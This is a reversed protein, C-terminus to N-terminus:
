STALEVRALEVLNSDEYFRHRELLKSEGSRPDPQYVSYGHAYHSFAFFVFDANEPAPALKYKTQKRFQHELSTRLLPDTSILPDRALVSRELTPM